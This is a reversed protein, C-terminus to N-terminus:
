MLTVLMDIEIIFCQGFDVIQSQCKKVSFTQKEFQHIETTKKANEELRRNNIFLKFTINYFKISFIKSLLFFNHIGARM